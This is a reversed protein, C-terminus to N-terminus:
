SKDYGKKIPVESTFEMAEDTLSFLNDSKVDNVEDLPVGWFQESVQGSLEKVMDDKAQDFRLQARHMVLKRDLWLWFKHSLRKM